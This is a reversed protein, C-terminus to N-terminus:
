LNDFIDIKNQTKMYHTYINNYGKSNSVLSYNPTLMWYYVIFIDVMM